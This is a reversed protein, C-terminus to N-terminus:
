QNSYQQQIHRNESIYFRRLRSEVRGSVNSPASPPYPFTRKHSNEPTRELGERAAEHEGSNTITHQHGDANRDVKRDVKRDVFWMKVINSGAGIMATKLWLFTVRKQIGLQCLSVSLFQYLFSGAQFHHRNEAHQAYAFLYM